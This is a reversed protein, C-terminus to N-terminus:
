LASLPFFFSLFIFRPAERRTCKYVKPFCAVKPWQGCSGVFRKWVLKSGHPLILLSIRMRVAVIPDEHLDTEKNQRPNTTRRGAKISGRDSGDYDMMWRKDKGFESITRKRTNPVILQSACVRRSSKNYVWPGGFRDRKAHLRPPGQAIAALSASPRTPLQAATSSNRKLWICWPARNLSGLHKLSKNVTKDQGDHSVIRINCYVSLTPPRIRVRIHEDACRASSEINSITGRRHHFRTQTSVTTEIGCVVSCLQM